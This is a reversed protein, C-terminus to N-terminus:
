WLGRQKYRNLSAYYRAINFLREHIEKGSEVVVPFIGWERWRKEKEADAGIVFSAGWFLDCVGSHQRRYNFATTLLKQMNEDDGSIGIFLCFNRRLMSTFVIYWDWYEHCMQQYSTTGLVIQDSCKESHQPLYGHAHYVTVDSYAMREDNFSRTSVDLGFSLLREEIIDDFNFTLINDVQGYKTNCCLATISELLEKGDPEMSYDRYLVDRVVRSFSYQGSPVDANNKLNYQDELWQAKKLLYQKDNPNGAYQLGLDTGLLNILQPWGPLGFGLSVGAGLVLSLAHEKRYEALLGTINNENYWQDILTMHGIYRMM